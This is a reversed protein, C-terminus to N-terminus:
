GEGASDPSSSAAEHVSTKARKKRKSKRAERAKNLLGYSADEVQLREFNGYMDFLVMRLSQVAVAVVVGTFVIGSFGILVAMIRGLTHKATLDGYGITLATVFAFYIGDGITWGEVYAVAIGLTTIVLLLFLIIPSVIRLIDFLREGFARAMGQGM